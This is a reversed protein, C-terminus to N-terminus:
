DIHWTLYYLADTKTVKSKYELVFLYIEINM